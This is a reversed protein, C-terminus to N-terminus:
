GGMMRQSWWRTMQLEQVVQTGPALCIRGAPIFGAAQWPSSIAHRRAPVKRMGSTRRLWPQEAEADERTTVPEFGPIEDRLSRPTAPLWYEFFANVKVKLDAITKGMQAEIQDRDADTYGTVTLRGSIGFAFLAGHGIKPVKVPFAPRGFKNNLALALEEDVIKKIATITNFRSLVAMVDAARKRHEDRPNESLEMYHVSSLPIMIQGQEVLMTLKGLLDLHEPQQPHGAMADGLAYWHNLDLYVTRRVTTEVFACAIRVLRGSRVPKADRSPAATRQVFSWATGHSCENSRAKVQLGRGHRVLGLVSM